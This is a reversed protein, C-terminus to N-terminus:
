RKMPRAGFTTAKLMFKMVGIAMKMRDDDDLFQLDHVTGARL